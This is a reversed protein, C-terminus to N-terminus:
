LDHNPQKKEWDIDRVIKLFQAFFDIGKEKYTKMFLYLILYCKINTVENRSPLFENVKHWIRKIKKTDRKSSSDILSIKYKIALHEYDEKKLLPVTKWTESYGTTEPEIWKKITDIITEETRDPIVILVLKRTGREIGGFVWQVDNCMPKHYKVLDIEVVKGVGGIKQSTLQLNDLIIDTVFMRWNSVTSSPFFFQEIAFDEMGTVIFYSLLFIEILTLESFKFYSAHRITKTCGIENSENRCIWSQDGFFSSSDDETFIMPVNCSECLLESKILGAEKLFEIFYESEGKSNKRKHSSKKDNDSCNIMEIDNQTDNTNPMLTFHDPCNIDLCPPMTRLESVLKTRAEITERLNKELYRCIGAEDKNKREQLLFKQYGDILVSQRELRLMAQRHKECDTIPEAPKPTGCRSSTSRSRLSYESKTLTLEM